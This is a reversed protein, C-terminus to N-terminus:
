EDKLVLVNVDKLFRGKHFDAIDNVLANVNGYEISNWISWPNLFVSLPLTPLWWLRRYEEAKITSYIPKGQLYLVATGDFTFLEMGPILVLSCGLLYGAAASQDETMGGQHFCIEVHYSNAGPNESPTVESFLGTALLASEVKRQLEKTDPMGPEDFINKSCLVKYTIPLKENVDIMHKVISTNSTYGADWCICGGCFGMLPLVIFLVKKAHM